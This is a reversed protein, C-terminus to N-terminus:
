LHWFSSITSQVQSTVVLVTFMCLFFRAARYNIRLAAICRIFDAIRVINSSVSTVSAAPFSFQSRDTIRKRFRRFHYQSSYYCYLLRCRGIGSAAVQLLTCIRAAERENSVYLCPVLYPLTCPLLIYPILYPLTFIPYGLM